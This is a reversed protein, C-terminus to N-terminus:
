LGLALNIVRIYESQPYLGIITKPEEDLPCILLMPISRIMFVDAIETNKDVDIRYFDVKGDYHQAIQRLIPELQKCPQCWDAYFDVVVPRPSKMVWDEVNYDAILEKFQEQTISHVTYVTDLNVTEGQNIPDVDVVNSDIISDPVVIYLTSDIDDIIVLTDPDDTYVQASVSMAAFMLLVLMWIKKM